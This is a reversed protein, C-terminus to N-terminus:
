RHGLIAMPAYTLTATGTRNIPNYSHVMNARTHNHTRYLAPCFTYQYYSKTPYAPLITFVKNNIQLLDYIDLEYTTYYASMDIIWTSLIGHVTVTASFQEIHCIIKM